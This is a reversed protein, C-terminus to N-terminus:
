INVSCYQCRTAIVFFLRKDAKKNKIGLHNGSKMALSLAIKERAKDLGVRPNKLM